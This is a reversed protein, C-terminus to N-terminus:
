ASNSSISSFIAIQDSFFQVRYIELGDQTGHSLDPSPLKMEIPPAAYSGREQLPGAPFLPESRRQGRLQGSVATTVKLWEEPSAGKEERCRRRLGLKAVDVCVQHLYKSDNPVLRFLQYSYESTPFIFTAGEIANAFLAVGISYPTSCLEDIEVPGAPIAKVSHIARPAEVHGEALEVIRFYAVTL